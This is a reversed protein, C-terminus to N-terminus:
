HDCLVRSAMTLDSQKNNFAYNIEPNKEGPLFCYPSLGEQMDSKMQLELKKWLSQELHIKICKALSNEFCSTSIAEHVM